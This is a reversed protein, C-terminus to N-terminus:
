DLPHRTGIGVKYTERIRKHFDKVREKGMTVRDMVLVQEKDMLDGTPLVLLIAKGMVVITEKHFIIIERGWKTTTARTHLCRVEEKQRILTGEVLRM